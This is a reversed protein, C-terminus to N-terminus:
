SFGTYSHFHSMKSWILSAAKSALVSSRLHGATRWRDSFTRDSRRCWPQAWFPPVRPLVTGEPATPLWQEVRLRWLKKMSTAGSKEASILRFVVSSFSEVFLPNGESLKVLEAVEDASMKAKSEVFSACDETSMPGLEITRVYRGALISDLEKAAISDHDLEDDNVTILFHIRARPMISMLTSLLRLSSFGWQADDVHVILTRLESLHVLLRCLLHQREQHRIMGKDLQSSADSDDLLTTLTQCLIDDQPLGLREAVTELLDVKERIGFFIRLASLIGSESRADRSHRIQLYHGVGNEHTTTCLLEALVSKGTGPRGRLVTTSVRSKQAAFAFNRWLLRREELRGVIHATEFQILELGVGSLPSGEGLDVFEETWESDVRPQESALPIVGTRAEDRLVILDIMTEDSVGENSLMTPDTWSSMSPSTRAQGSPRGLRLLDARADQAWLYRQQWPKALLKELWQDFGVPVLYNDELRPITKKRHAILVDVIEKERYPPKGTVLSHAICGVAYLDTWPGYLNAASVCQEPAMFHPTGVIALKSVDGSSGSPRTMVNQRTALAIGFDSLVAGREAMLVNGPKLDLHVIGRAHVRALGRLIDLLIQRTEQWITQGLMTKLTGREVMEMVLYVQGKPCTTGDPM